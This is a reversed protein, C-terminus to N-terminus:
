GCHVGALTLVDLEEVIILGIQVLGIILGLLGLFKLRSATSTGSDDEGTAALRAALVVALVAVALCGATIAHMAIRAGDHDCGLRALSALAVLHVAWAAVAGFVPFWTTAAQGLASAVSHSERAEAAPRDTATM